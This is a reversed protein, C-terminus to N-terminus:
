NYFQNRADDDLAQREAQDSMSPECVLPNAQLGAAICAPVRGGKIPFPIVVCPQGITDQHTDLSPFAHARRINTFLPCIRRSVM